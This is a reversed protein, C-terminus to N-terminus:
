KMYVTAGIAKLKGIYIGCEEKTIGKIIQNVEGGVFFLDNCSACEQKDRVIELANLLLKKLLEKNM